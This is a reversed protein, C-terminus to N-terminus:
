NKEYQNKEIDNRDEECGETHETKSESKGRKDEKSVENADADEEQEINFNKDLENEEDKIFLFNYVNERTAPDKSITLLKACGTTM